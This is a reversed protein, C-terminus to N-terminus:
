FRITASARLTRGDQPIEAQIHEEAGPDGYKRDFINYAGVTVDLRNFLRDATLTANQLYVGSIPNGRVSLREGMYSGSSAVFLRSHGVPVVVDYKVTNAPSNSLRAGSGGDRTRTWTYSGRAVASGKPRAEIESEVGTSRADNLNAYCFNGADDITQSILREIDSHFVSVTSRLRRGYHQEWVGEVTHVSEPRLAPRGPADLPYYYLEFANPARFARGYMLKLARGESANYVAAARPSSQFGFSGFHDVRMGGTVVVKPTLSLEDQVYLGSTRARRSDYITTVSSMAAYQRERLVYRTEAGATVLHRSAFRRNATIEGNLWDSQGADDQIQVGAGDEDFPYTGKYHYRDYSGRVFGSWGRGFATTYTADIYTRADTTRLNPDGFVTGFSATPVRKTREGKVVHLTARGISIASFFRAAQDRDSNRVVGNHTQPADFEPFYLASQGGTQQLSAAFLVDGHAFVRGASAQAGFADLSGATATLRPERVQRGTKTIVNIVALFANTGYLSSGPGRIIEVRDVTEMDIPLDTGISAQDFVPDNVRHGDILLLLRTNYDGPRAFGRIGGYSYNRDDSVYLGRVSRLVDALTRHGFRRIEEATVVTVSAAVRTVPQPFKSATSVVEVALLEELSLANIDQPKQDGSSAFLSVAGTILM